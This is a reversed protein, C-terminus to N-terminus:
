KPARALLAHAHEVRLCAALTASGFTRTAIGIVRGDTDMLPGGSNGSVIPATVFITAETKRVRGVTPTSTARSTELLHLGRPYGLVLVPDLRHVQSSAPALPISAVKRDVRCRLLALDGDDNRHCFLGDIRLHEPRRM